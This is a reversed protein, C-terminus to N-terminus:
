NELRVGIQGTQVLWKAKSDGKQYAQIDIKTKDLNYNNKFYRYLIAEWLPIDDFADRNLRIILRVNPVKSMARVVSALERSGYQPIGRQWFWTKSVTYDDKKLFFYQLATAIVREAAAKDAINTTDTSQIYTTPQGTTNDIPLIDSINDILINGITANKFHYTACLHLHTYSKTPTFRFTIKQWNTDVVLVPDAIYISQECADNSAALALRSPTNFNHEKPMGTNPQHNLLDEMVVSWYNDSRAAYLTLMYTQGALLPTALKQSAWEFTKDTRTVMGIYNFGDFPPTTCNFRGPQVDFPTNSAIDCSAWQPVVAEKQTIFNLMTSIKTDNKPMINELSGNEIKIMPAKPSQALLACPLLLLACKILNKFVLM